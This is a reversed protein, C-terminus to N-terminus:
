WYNRTVLVIHKVRSTPHLRTRYYVLDERSTRSHLAYCIDFYAQPYDSERSIPMTLRKLSRANNTKGNILVSQPSTDREFSQPTAKGYVVPTACSCLLAVAIRPDCV